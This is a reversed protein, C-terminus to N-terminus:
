SACVCVGSSERSDGRPIPVSPRSLRTLCMIWVSEKFRLGKGTERWREKGSTRGEEKAEKNLREREEEKGEVDGRLWSSLFNAEHIAHYEPLLDGDERPLAGRDELMRSKRSTGCSKGRCSVEWRWSRGYGEANRGPSGEKLGKLKGDERMRAQFGRRKFHQSENQVDKWKRKHKNEGAQM